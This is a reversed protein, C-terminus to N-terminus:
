HSRFELWYKRPTIGTQKRFARTFHSQDYFGIEQSIESISKQTITLLRQAEQIKRATIYQNFSSHLIQRFLRNLHSVSLDSHHAVEQAVLTDRFHEEIYRIAPYLRGFWQQQSEPTEVHYMVGTTGIVENAESLLMTKSSIYWHPTGCFHPVLWLKNFLPTQNEMIGMDEIRYANACAPTFFDYDTKGIVESEDKVDMIPYMAPNIKIFQGLKNKAHFCAGPLTSFLDIVALTQSSLGLREM